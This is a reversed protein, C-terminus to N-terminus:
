SLAEISKIVGKPIRSAMAMAKFDRTVQAALIIHDEADHVLYGVSFCVHDFEFHQWDKIEDADGWTATNTIDEWTVLVLPDDRRMSSPPPALDDVHRGSSTYGGIWQKGDALGGCTAKLQESM